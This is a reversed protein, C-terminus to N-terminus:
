NKEVVNKLNNFGTEFQDGIMKECNMFLSMIKGMFNNPGYMTWTMKTGNATPELIYETMNTAKMPKEFDLRLKLFENERSEILTSMGKGAKKGEWKVISGIGSQPGAFEYKANPEMAVWPSWKQSKQVDNLYPFIEFPSAAISTSRTVRFEKPCFLTYIYLGAILLVVILLIVNLM